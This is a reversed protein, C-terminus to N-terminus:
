HVLRCGYVCIDRALVAAFSSDTKKWFRYPSQLFSLLQLIFIDIMGVVPKMVEGLLVINVSYYHLMQRCVCVHTNQALVAVGSTLKGGVHSSNQYLLTLNSYFDM